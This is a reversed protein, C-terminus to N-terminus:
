EQFRHGGFITTVLSHSVLMSYMFACTSDVRDDARTALAVDAAESDKGWYYSITTCPIFDEGVSEMYAGKKRWLSFGRKMGQVSPIEGGDGIREQRDSLTCLRCGEGRLGAGSWQGPECAHEGTAAALERTPRASV